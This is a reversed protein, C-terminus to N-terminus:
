KGDVQILQRQRQYKTKKVRNIKEGNSKSRDIQFDGVLQRNEKTKTQTDHTNITLAKCIMLQSVVIENRNNRISLYFTKNCNREISNRYQMPIQLKLSSQDIGNKSNAIASSVLDVCIHLFKEFVCLFIYIM